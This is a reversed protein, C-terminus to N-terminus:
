KKLLGAIRPPLDPEIKAEREADLNRRSRGYFFNLVARRQLGALKVALFLTPVAAGAVLTALLFDHTRGQVQALVGFKPGLAYLAVCSGSLGVLANIVVGFAAEKFSLHAFYGFLLSLVVLLLAMLDRQSGQLADYGLLEVVRDFGPISGKAGYAQALAPLCGAALCAAALFFKRLSSM